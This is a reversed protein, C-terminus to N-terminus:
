RAVVEITLRGEVSRTGDARYAIAELAHLGIGQALWNMEVRFVPVSLGNEPEAENIKVGDVYLELRTIGSGSDRAVIDLAFDTGEFVQSNNPPALFEATPIDPTPPATPTPAAPRGLNCGSLMLLVLASTILFQSQRMIAAM